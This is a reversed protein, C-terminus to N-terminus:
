QDRHFETPLELEHIAGAIEGLRQTLILQADYVGRNYFYSGLEASIFDILFEADFRGIEHDLEDGSYAQIKEVLISKEEPSFKLM